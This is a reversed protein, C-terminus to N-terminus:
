LSIDPRNLALNGMTITKIEEWRNKFRDPFEVPGTERLVMVIGRVYAPTMQGSFDCEPVDPFSLNTCRIGFDKTMRIRLDTLGNNFTVSHNENMYLYQLLISIDNLAFLEDKTRM